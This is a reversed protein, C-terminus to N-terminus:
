LQNKLKVMVLFHNDDEKLKKKIQNLKEKEAPLKVERNKFEDSNLYHKMDIASILMLATNEYTIIPRFHPGGTIDDIFGGQKTEKVAIGEKTEKNFLCWEGTREKRNRNIRISIIDTPFSSSIRHKMFAPGAFTLPYLGTGSPQMM